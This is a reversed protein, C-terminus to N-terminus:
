RCLMYAAPSLRGLLYRGHSGQTLLQLRGVREHDRGLEHRAAAQQLLVAALREHLERMLQRLVRPKSKREIVSLGPPLGIIAGSM